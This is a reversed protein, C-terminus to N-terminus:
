VAGGSMIFYVANNAFTDIGAPVSEKLWIPKSAPTLLFELTDGDAWTGGWFATPITFYPTSTDPNTATFESSRAGSGLSGLEDGSVSFNSADSFTVTITDYVSGINDGYVPYTAENTTGSASTAVYDSVVPQVHGLDLLVCLRTPITWTEGGITTTWSQTYDDGIPNALEITAISGAWSISAIENYESAVTGVESECHIRNTIYVPDGSVIEGELDTLGFNWQLSSGSGGQGATIFASHLIGAGVWKYTADLDSYVDVHTGLAARFYDGARSPLDIGFLGNYFVLNDANDNRMFVKRYRDIGAARESHTVHPFLAGHQGSTIAVFTERGGGSSGDAYTASKNLVLDSSAFPM